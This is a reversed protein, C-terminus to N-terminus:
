DIKDIPESLNKLRSEEQLATFNMSEWIKIQNAQWQKYAEKKRRLLRCADNVQRQRQLIRRRFRSMLIDRHTCANTNHINYSAKATGEM